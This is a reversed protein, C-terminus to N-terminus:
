SAECLARASLSHVQLLMSVLSCDDLKAVLQDTSPPMCDQLAPPERPCIVTVRKALARQCASSRTGSEGSPCGPAHGRGDPPKPWSSRWRPRARAAARRAISVVGAGGGSSGRGAYAAVYSAGPSGAEGSSCAVPGGPVPEPTTRVSRSWALSSAMRAGRGRVVWGSLM